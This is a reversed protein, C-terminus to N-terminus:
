HWLRYMFRGPKGYSHGSTSVSIFILLHCGGGNISKLRKNVEFSTLFIYKRGEKRGKKKGKKKRM